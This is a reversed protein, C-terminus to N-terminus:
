NLGYIGTDRVVEKGQNNVEWLYIAQTHGIILARVVKFVHKEYLGM